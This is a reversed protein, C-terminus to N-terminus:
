RSFCTVLFIYHFCNYSQTSLYNCDTAAQSIFIVCSIIFRWVALDKRFDKTHNTNTCKSLVDPFLKYVHVKKSLALVPM